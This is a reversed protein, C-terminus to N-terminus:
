LLNKCFIQLLELLVCFGVLKNLHVIVFTMTLKLVAVVTCAIKIHLDGHGPQIGYCQIM